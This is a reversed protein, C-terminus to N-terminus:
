TSYWLNKIASQASRKLDPNRKLNDLERIVMFPIVFERSTDLVIEPSDILINTDLSIKM